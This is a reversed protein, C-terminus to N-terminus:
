RHTHRHHPDPFHPHDHELPEHEHFHSHPEEVEGEHAHHHHSDHIHAHEHALAAHRHRHGHREYLLLLAGAAMLAAPLFPFQEGLLVVSLAAGFLPATAFLGAQRAAGLDRVARIHWAVSLGYSLAGLLAAEGIAPLAALREGLVLSVVLTAGGGFLGKLQAIQIPDRLALKQTLNNEVAWALAAGILLLAGPLSAAGAGGALSLVAGGALVLLVGAAARASLHDHFAAVAILVTLPAELSLLLSAVAGGTRSLGMLMLLPGLVGGALIVAALLPVDKRALQTESTERRLARLLTLSLGAGLYLLGALVGPSAGPLLLKALPVSAGFLAAACLGYAASKASAM